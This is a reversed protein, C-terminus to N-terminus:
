KGKLAMYIRGSRTSLDQLKETAPMPPKKRLKRDLVKNAYIPERFLNSRACWWADKFCKAYIIFFLDRDKHLESAQYDKSLDWAIATRSQRYTGAYSALSGALMNVNGGASKKLEAFTNSRFFSFYSSGVRLANYIKECADVRKKHSVPLTPLPPIPTSPPARDLFILSRGGDGNTKVDAEAFAAPPPLALPALRSLADKDVVAVRSNNKKVVAAYLTQYANAARLDFVDAQPLSAVATLAALAMKAISAVASTQRDLVYLVQTDRGFKNILFQQQSFPQDADFAAVYIVNPDNTDNGDKDIEFIKKDICKELGEAVIGSIVGENATRICIKTRPKM